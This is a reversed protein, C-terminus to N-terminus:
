FVGFAYFDLNENIENGANIYLSGNTNKVSGLVTRDLDIGNILRLEEDIAENEADTLNPDDPYWGESHTYRGSRDYPESNQFNLTTNIFGKEGWPLGFNFSLQATEGDKVTGYISEGDLDANSGINDYKPNSM